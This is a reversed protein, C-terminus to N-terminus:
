GLEYGGGEAPPNLPTPAGVCSRLELERGEAPPNLPTPVGLKVRGLFGCNM